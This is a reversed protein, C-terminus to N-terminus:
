MYYSPNLDERNCHQCTSLTFQESTQVSKDSVCSPSTVQHTCCFYCKKVKSVPRFFFKNYKGDKSEKVFLNQLFVSNRQNTM